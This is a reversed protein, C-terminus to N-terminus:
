VTSLHPTPISAFVIGVHSRCYIHVFFNHVARSRDSLAGLGGTLVVVIGVDFHSVKLSSLILSLLFRQTLCISHHSVVLGHRHVAVVKFAAHSRRPVLSLLVFNCVGMVRCGAVDFRERVGSSRPQLLCHRVCSTALM